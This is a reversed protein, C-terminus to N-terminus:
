RQQEDPEPLEIRDEVWAQLFARVVGSMTLGQAAGKSKVARHLGDPVSVTIRKEEEQVSV